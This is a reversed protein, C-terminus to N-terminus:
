EYGLRKELAILRDFNMEYLGRIVMHADKLVDRDGIGICIMGANLAAEVGAYADEFVVCRGTEVGVLAAAMLFVEPDPKAKHVNNGDAVADFV